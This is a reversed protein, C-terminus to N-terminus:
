SRLESPRLAAACMLVSALRYVPHVVLTSDKQDSWIFERATGKSVAGSMQIASQIAGCEKCRIQGSAAKMTKDGRIRTV